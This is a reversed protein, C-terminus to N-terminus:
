KGGSQAYLKVAQTTFWDTYQKRLPADWASDWKLGRDTYRRRTQILTNEALLAVQKRRTEAAQKGWTIGLQVATTFLILPGALKGLFAGIERVPGIVSEPDRQYAKVIDDAANRATKKVATEASKEIINVAIAAAGAEDSRPCRWKGTERDKIQGRPNDATVYKKGYKCPNGTRSPGTATTGKGGSSSRGSPPRKPCYGDPGVGRPNDPTQLHKGYKCPPRPV